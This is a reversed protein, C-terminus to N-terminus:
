EVLSREVNNYKFARVNAMDTLIDNYRNWVRIGNSMRAKFNEILDNPITINEVKIQEIDMAKVNFYYRINDSEDFCYKIEPQYNNVKYGNYELKRAVYEIDNVIETWYCMNASNYYMDSSITNGQTETAPAYIANEKAVQINKNINELAMIEDTASFVMKGISSLGGTAGKSMASINGTASGAAIGVGSGILDLTGGTFQKVFTYNANKKALAIGTTLTGKNTALYQQYQDSFLSMSQLTRVTINSLYDFDGTSKLSYLRNNSVFDYSYHLDFDWKTAKCLPYSTYQMKEGFYLRMYNDDLVQPVFNWQFNQKKNYAKTFGFPSSLHLQEKDITLKNCVILSYALDGHQSVAPTTFECNSFNCTIELRMDLSGDDNLTKKIVFDFMTTVYYSSMYYIESVYPNSCLINIQALYDDLQIFRKTFMVGDITFVINVSSESFGDIKDKSIIPMLCYVFGDSIDDNNLYITTPYQNVWEVTPSWGKKFKIVLMNIDNKYLHFDDYKTIFEGNSLNERIYNRNILTSNKDSKNEIYRPITQRTINGNCKINFMYTVITDMTIDVIYIKENVYEIRDIFYYYYFNNFYISMYNFSTNNYDLDDISIKISNKFFPVYNSNEKSMVIKTNFYLNRDNSNDFKPIDTRTINYDINYFYLTSM